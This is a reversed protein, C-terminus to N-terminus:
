YSYSSFRNGLFRHSVRSRKGLVNASGPIDAILPTETLTCEFPWIVRSRTDLRLCCNTMSSFFEKSASPLAGSFSFSLFYFLIATCYIDM